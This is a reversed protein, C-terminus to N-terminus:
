RTQRLRSADIADSRVGLRGALERGMAEGLL